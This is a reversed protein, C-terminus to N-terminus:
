RPLGEHLYQYYESGNVKAKVVALLLFLALYSASGV